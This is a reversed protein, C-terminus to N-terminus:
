QEYDKTKFKYQMKDAVCNLRLGNYIFLPSPTKRQVGLARSVVIM